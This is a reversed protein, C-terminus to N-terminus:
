MNPCNASNHTGTGSSTGGGTTTGPSSSPSPTPDAASVFAVGGVALLGIALLLSAVMRRPM